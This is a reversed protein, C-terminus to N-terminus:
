LSGDGWAIALRMKLNFPAMSLRGIESIGSGTNSQHVTFLRYKKDARSLNSSGLNM